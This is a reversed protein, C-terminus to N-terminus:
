RLTEQDTAVNTRGNATTQTCKIRYTASPSLQLQGFDTTTNTTTTANIIPNLLGNVAINGDLTNVVTARSTLGSVAVPTETAAAAGKKTKFVLAFSDGAGITAPPTITTTQILGNLGSTLTLNQLAENLYYTLGLNIPHLVVAPASGSNLPLTDTPDKLITITDATPGKSIWTNDPRCVTANQSTWSIVTNDRTPSTTVTLYVQPEDINLTGDGDNDDGPDTTDGDDNNDDGGGTPPDIPNGDPDTDDGPDTDGPPNEGGGGDDDEPPTTGPAWGSDPAPSGKPAPPCPDPGDALSNQGTLDVNFIAALMNQLEQKVCDELSEDGQEVQRQASALNGSMTDKIISGPSLTKYVLCATQNSNWELCTRTGLFGASALYEETANKAAWAEELTKAEDALMVSGDRSNVPENASLFGNWYKEKALGVANSVVNNYDTKSMTSNPYQGSDLKRLKSVTDTVHISGSQEAYTSYYGERANKIEGAENKSQNEVKAITKQEGGGSVDLAAGSSSRAQTYQTTAAKIYQSNAVFNAKRGNPDDVFEKEELEYQIRRIAKLHVCIEQQLAFNQQTIQDIMALRAASYESYAVQAGVENVPVAFISAVFNGLAFAPPVTTVPIFTCDAPLGPRTGAAATGGTTGGTTGGGTTTGTGTGTTTGTGPPFTDLTKVWPGRAPQLAQEAADTGAATTPQGANACPIPPNPVNCDVVTTDGPAPPGVIDALNAGAPANLFTNLATALNGNAGGGYLNLLGGLSAGSQSSYQGLLNQLGSLNAGSGGLQGLLGSFGGQGTLGGYDSIISQWNGGQLGGLQGLIGTISSMQGGTMGGLQGLIQNFNGGGSLLGSFSGGMNAIQNFMGSLNGLEPGTFNTRLMETFGGFDGFNGLLDQVRTGLRNLNSLTSGLNNLDFGNLTNQLSGITRNGQRIISQVDSMTGGMDRIQELVPIQQSFGSRGRMDNLLQDISTYQSLNTDSFAAEAHYSYIALMILVIATGVFFFQKLLKIM